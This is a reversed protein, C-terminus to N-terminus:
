GAFAEDIVGRLKAIRRLEAEIDATRAEREAETRKADAKATALAATLAEQHEKARQQYRDRLQRRIRELRDGNDKRAAVALEGIYKQGDVKTTHRRQNLSQKRLEKITRVTLLGGLVLSVPNILAMGVLRSLIGFMMVGGYSGRLAAVGAGVRDDQRETDRVEGARAIAQELSGIDLGIGTASGRDGGDAVFHEEVRAVLEVVRGRVMEDNAALHEAARRYLWQEYEERSDAPDIAEVAADSEEYFRRLHGDLDHVADRNLDTIGDALTLDWRASVQRQAAAREAAAELEALRRQQAEPDALATHEARYQEEIEDVVRVAVARVGDLVLREGGAAVDDRLFRELDAFGSEHNLRADGREVALRRLESSLTLVPFDLGRSALHGLDLDLITRWEPYFDTKTLAGVVNPCSKRATDLFELEPGSYEQSADSVFLVADAMPLANLTIAAHAGALGGVGPTDVLVLGGQLLPAPLGIEVTRVRKVNEPNASEIVYGALQDIPVETRLDAVDQDPSDPALYIAATWEESWRLVTPVATAVDDDVPCAVTGLLANVLSSKGQKFEGIVLVTFAPDLLRERVLGLERALDPRGLAGAVRVTTDIAGVARQRPSAAEEADNSAEDAM